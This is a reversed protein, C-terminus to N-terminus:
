ATIERWESPDYPPDEDDSGGPIDAIPEEVKAGKITRIILVIAGLGLFFLFWVWGPHDILWYGVWIGSLIVFFGILSGLFLILIITIAQSLNMM